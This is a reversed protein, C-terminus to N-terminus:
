KFPYCDKIMDYKVNAIKKVKAVFFESGKTEITEECNSFMDDHIDTITDWKNENKWWEFTERLSDEDMSEIDGEKISSNKNIQSLLWEKVDDVEEDGTVNYNPDSIEDGELYTEDEVYIGDKIFTTGCITTGEDYWKCTLSVNEFENICLSYLKILFGDPIYSPSEIRIDDDIGVTIWKTGVNDYLWGHKVGEETIPYETEGNNYPKKLEEETYFTEVITKTEKGYESETMDGIMKCIKDMAEKPQIIVRSYIFNSM